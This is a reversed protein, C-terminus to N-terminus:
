EVVKGEANLKAAGEVPKPKEDAKLLHSLKEDLAVQNSIVQELLQYVDNLEVKM